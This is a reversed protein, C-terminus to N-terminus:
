DLRFVKDRSRAGRDLTLRTKAVGLATALLVRAAETARGDAPLETVRVALGHETLRIGPAAAGPTVRVALRAGPRALHSLDPPRTM